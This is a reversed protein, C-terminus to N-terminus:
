PTHRGAAISSAAALFYPRELQQISALRSTSLAGFLILEPALRKVLKRTARFHVWQSNGSAATVPAIGSYCQMENAMQYRDWQTGFGVIM